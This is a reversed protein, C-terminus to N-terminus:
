TRATAPCLVGAATLIRVTANRTAQDPARNSRGAFQRITGDSRIELAFALINSQEIGIITTRGAAAAPGFDGLCNSLIRGWRQLDGATRPVTFTLNGFTRGHLAAATPSIQLPSDAAVPPLTTSPAFIRHQPRQPEARSAARRPQVPRVVPQVQVRPATAVRSRYADHLEALRNPLAAPSQGRLQRCYRVSELLLKVGDTSTAADLLVREARFAGWAAVTRRAADLTSPDPLHSAPHAVRPTSLVRALRDPELVDTGIMALALNSFDVENSAGPQLAEALARVVPRTTRDGFAAIAGDRATRAAVVPEAWRPVERVPAAGADYVAALLPFAAGGFGALLSAGDPPAWSDCRGRAELLASRVAAEIASASSSTRQGADRLVECAAAPQVSVDVVRGLPHM